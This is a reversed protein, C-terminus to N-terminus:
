LTLLPVYSSFPKDFNDEDDDLSAMITELLKLMHAVFNPVPPMAEESLFGYRAM